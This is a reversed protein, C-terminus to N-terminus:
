LIKADRTGDSREASSGDGPKREDESVPQYDQLSTLNHHKVGSVETGSSDNSPCVEANRGTWGSRYVAGYGGGSEHKRATAFFAKDRETVTWTEFSFSFVSSALATCISVIWASPHMTFKKWNGVFIHLMGFLVCVKKRGLVNMFALEVQLRRTNWGYWFQLMIQLVVLMCCTFWFAGYMKAGISCLHKALSIGYPTSKTTIETQYYPLNIDAMSNSMPAITYSYKFCCSSLGCYM